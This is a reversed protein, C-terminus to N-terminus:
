VGVCVQIHLYFGVHDEDEDIDTEMGVQVKVQVGLCMMVQVGM